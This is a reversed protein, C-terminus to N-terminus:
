TVIIGAGGAARRDYYALHRDSYSRDRGLNTEHPGFVIRNPATHSGIALPDTLVTSMTGRIGDPYPVSGLPPGVISSLSTIRVAPATRSNVSSGMEWATSWSM